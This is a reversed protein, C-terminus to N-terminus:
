PKQRGNRRVNGELTGSPFVHDEQSCAQHAKLMALRASPRVENTVYRMM